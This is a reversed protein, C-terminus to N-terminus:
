ERGGGRGNEIGLTGIVTKLRTWIKRKSTKTSKYEDVWAIQARRRGNSTISFWVTSHLQLQEIGNGDLAEGHVCEM